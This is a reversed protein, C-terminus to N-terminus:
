EQTQFLSLLARTDDATDPAFGTGPTDPPFVLDPEPSSQVNVASAEFFEAPNPLPSQVQEAASQLLLDTLPVSSTHGGLHGMLCQWADPVLSLWAVAGEPLLRAALLTKYSVSLESLSAQFRFRFRREPIWLGPLWPHGDDLEGELQQLLPLHYFLASWFVVAQWLLSQAAQTEPAAGPPLMHGKALRVACATFQLTLDVFGGRYSWNGESTAPVHQVRACLQRLPELYFQQYLGAPLASNEWLQRLYRGRESTALLVEVSQPRFYGGADRVKEPIQELANQLPSPERTFRSKFRQFM